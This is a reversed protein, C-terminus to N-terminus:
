LMTVVFVKDFVKDDKTLCTRCPNLIGGDTSRRPNEYISLALELSCYIETVTVLQKQLSLSLKRSAPM